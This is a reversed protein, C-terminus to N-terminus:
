KKNNGEGISSALETEGPPMQLRLFPCLSSFLPIVQKYFCVTIILLSLWLANMKFVQFCPM